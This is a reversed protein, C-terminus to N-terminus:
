ETDAHYHGAREVDLAHARDARCSQRSPNALIRGFGQGFGDSDASEDLVIRRRRGHALTEM